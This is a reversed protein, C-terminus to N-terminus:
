VKTRHYGVACCWHPTLSAVSLKEVSTRIVYYTTLCHHTCFLTPQRSFIDQLMKSQAFPSIGIVWLPRNKHFMQQKTAPTLQVAPSLTLAWLLCILCRPSPSFNMRVSCRNPPLNAVAALQVAPSELTRRQHPIRASCARWQGSQALSLLPPPSRWFGAHLLEGLWGVLELAKRARRWPVHPSHQCPCTQCCQCSHFNECCFNPPDIPVAKTVSLVVASSGQWLLMEM